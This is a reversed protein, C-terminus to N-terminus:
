FFFSLPVQNGHKTPSCNCHFSAFLRCVSVVGYEAFDVVHTFMTVAVNPVRAATAIEYVAETQQKSSRQFM